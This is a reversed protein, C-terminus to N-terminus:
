ARRVGYGVSPRPIVANRNIGFAEKFRQRIAPPTERNECLISVGIALSMVTDDHSGAQAGMDNRTDLYVFSKLEDLTEQSNIKLDLARLSHSLANVMEIKTKRTTQWGYVIGGTKQERVYLNPYGNNALRGCTAAGHNNVEPVINGWNYYAGLDGLVDAFDYPTIHGRWQAVQEWTSIDLVDAVSYDGDPIGEAVDASIVYRRDERPTDWVKLPGNEGPEVEIRKGINRLRGTWKPTRAAQIQKQIALWDFVMRGSTLFADEECNHVLVGNAGFAHLIPVTLDYVQDEGCPTVSVVKDSNRIAVALRGRKEGIWRKGGRKRASIFGINDHFATANRASLALENGDYFGSPAKKKVTRCLGNMGFGTLLLNVTQLFDPYKSFFMVRPQYPYACGDCEFLASLFAAVVSKPSRLICEPVHVKRQWYQITGNDRFRPKIIGLANFIEQLKTNWARSEIGGRKNGVIRSALHINLTDRVVGRIDAITDTDKADCVFSLINGYFSGDGMFYGLLKGWDEDILISSKVRGQHHWEARYYEKSFSAPQLTLESGVSLGDLRVFGTKTSFLHNATARIKRGNETLVEFIQKTGQFLHATLTNGDVSNAESAYKIPVIGKDTCVLTDGALCSPYEQPFLDPNSMERLKQRRWALKQDPVQYAERLKNEAEDLVLPKDVAIEFDEAGWWPFFHAKYATQGRKTKLWFKHFPTGYGNATTEIVRRARNVCAGEVAALFPESPYFARESLHLHTIDSGRGPDMAGATIVRFHSNTESFRLHGASAEAVPINIKLNELMWKVRAFLVKADEDRHSVVVANVYKELICASLFEAGILSSFGRKRPKLIIDCQTRAGWYEQQEPRFIFPVSQQSDGHIINFSSQIFLSKDAKIRAFMAAPDDAQQIKPM